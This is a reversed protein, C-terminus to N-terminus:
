LKAPLVVKAGAGKAAPGPLLAPVQHVVVVFPYDGKMQSYITAEFDPGKYRVAECSPCTVPEAVLKRSKLESRLERVCSAQVTKFVVDQGPRQARLMLRCAAVAAGNQAPLTWFAERSSATPATYSWESTLHQTVVQPSTLATPEAGITLLDAFGICQARLSAPVVAQLALLILLIFLRM